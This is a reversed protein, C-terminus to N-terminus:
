GETAFEIYLKLQPTDPHDSEIIVTGPPAGKSGSRNAPPSNKPIEITLNYMHTKGSSVKTVAGLKAQLVGEPDIKGIRLNINDRHPGTVLVRMPVVAGEVRNVTNLLLRNQEPFFLHKGTSLLRIDGVVNGEVAVKLSEGEVNTPIEITQNIAGLPLGSKATISVFFGSKADREQALDEPSMPRSSVEFFRASAPNSFKPEGLSLAEDRMCLVKVQANGGEKAVLNTFTVRDPMIAVSDVVRGSITLRILKRRPDNTFVEANQEFSNGGLKTEWSLKVEVQEGPDLTTDSAESLTCSCTTEGPTLTLPSAGENKIIFVHSRKTHREQVGFDHKEGNVVVVKPADAYEQEAEETTLPQGDSTFWNEVGRFEWFTVGGGVAAGVALFAIAVITTKM